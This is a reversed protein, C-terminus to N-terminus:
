PTDQEIALRPLSTRRASQDIASTAAGARFDASSLPLATASPLVDAGGGDQLLGRGVAASSSTGRGVGPALAFWALVALLLLIAGLTALITRGM